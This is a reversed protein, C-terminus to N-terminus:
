QDTLVYTFPSYITSLMVSSDWPNKKDKNGLRDPDTENELWCILVFHTGDSKYVFITNKNTAIPTPWPWPGIDTNVPDIPITKLDIVSLTTAWNASASYVPTGGTATAAADTIPYKGGNLVSYAELANKIQSLAIKRQSDKAQKIRQLPNVAVLVGAALVGLIAIVVLLEILTFGRRKPNM